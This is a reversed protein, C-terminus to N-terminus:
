AGLMGAVSQGDNDLVVIVCGGDPLEEIRYESAVGGDEVIERLVQEADRRSKFRQRGRSTPM